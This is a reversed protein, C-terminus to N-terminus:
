SWFDRPYIEAVKRRMGCTWHFSGEGARKRLHPLPTHPVNLLRCVTEWDRNISEFRGMFDLRLKGQISLLCFQSYIHVHGFNGLTGIEAGIVGSWSFDDPDLLLRHDHLIDIFRELSGGTVRQSHPSDVYFSELRAWPNRVFAWKFLSDVDAKQAFDYLTAHGSGQNWKMSEMSSGACKPVHIFLSKFEPNLTSM